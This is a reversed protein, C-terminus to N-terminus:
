GDPLLQLGSSLSASGCPKCAHHASRPQHSAHLAACVHCLEPDRRIANRVILLFTPATLEATERGLAVFFFSNMSSTVLPTTLDNATAPRIPISGWGGGQM